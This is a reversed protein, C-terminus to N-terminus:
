VLELWGPEPNFYIQQVLLGRSPIQGIRAELLCHGVARVLEGSSSPVVTNMLGADTSVYLVKGVVFNQVITVDLRGRLLMGEQAPNTGLALGLLQDSGAASSSADAIQWVGSTDLYYLKHILTAGTGLKVIHRDTNVNSYKNIFDVLEAKSWKNKAYRAGAGMGGM